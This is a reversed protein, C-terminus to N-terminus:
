GNELHSLDREFTEWAKTFARQHTNTPRSWFQEFEIHHKARKFFVSPDVQKAGSGRNVRYYASIGKFAADIAKHLSNFGGSESRMRFAEKLSKKALTPSLRRWIFHLVVWKAYAREPYGKASRSVQKGLWYRPLYYSPDSKPFVHEYYREEFLQEKGERVVLPDLDTAAVVQALEEKTIVFRHKVGADRRAEGKSQRKRLYQYDIKRLNRELEVQRRDNAMLDSARIANQWNTAAVIRSVLNEFRLADQDTERPVSIVRVLVTAKTSKNACEHLTRTTQQGNIIQPNVLRLVKNGGRSVQEAADCVITVGNNYYWFFEPEKDLTEKMNRNIQTDGLFGRVNRAFLRIGAGEYMRAIQEVSVPVVWSEIRTQQDFRQLVGSLSVGQGSELEIELLPVPPAVGDLYDSLLRLVRKGDIIDIDVDGSLRRVMSDAEKGLALSCKGTTVFYLQVRYSRGKIRKRAEEAKGAAAVSLGRRYDSFAQDDGFSRALDAFALVDSRKEGGGNPKQRYKGQVIFVKRAAEDIHIADLSKDKTGGVLSGVAEEETDTVFCKMFWAVFLEDDKLSRYRERMDDLESKLDKETVQAVTIEKCNM